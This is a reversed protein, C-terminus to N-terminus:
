FDKSVKKQQQKYRRQEERDSTGDGNYKLMLSQHDYSPGFYELEISNKKESGEVSFYWYNTIGSFQEETYKDPKGYKETLIELIAYYTEDSPHKFPLWASEFKTVPNYEWEMSGSLMCTDLACGGMTLGTFFYFPWSFKKNKSSEVKVTFKVGPKSLMIKKATEMSSGFPIGLAGNLEPQASLTNLQLCFIISLFTCSRTRM